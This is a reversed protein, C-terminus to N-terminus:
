NRGEKIVKMFAKDDLESELLENPPEVIQNNKDIKEVLELSSLENANKALLANIFKSRELKNERKEWGLLGVLALIIITLTIEIM